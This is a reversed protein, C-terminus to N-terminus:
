HSTPVCEPLRKSGAKLESETACIRIGAKRTAALALQEDEERDFKWGLNSRLYEFSVEPYRETIEKVTKAADDQRGLEAQAAAMTVLIYPNLPNITRWRNAAEVAEAFRKTYFFNSVCDAYYWAPPNPNLRFSRDCMAAGEESKGIFHMTDAALNLIDASSPNLQQARAAAEAAETNRDGGVITFALLVHALAENPDVGIATRALREMEAYTEDWNKRYAALHFLLWAKQVYARALSPDRAIAAEAYKIGREYAEQTGELDADYALAYLDYAQLDSPRKRKAALRVRNVLLNYGGLTNAVREAVETQVAFVDEAPRDWRESWVHSGHNTEVLQATVRVTDAQRQISGELVYGVNLEKAIQRVDVAKGKYQKVSNRAIVDLDRYRALDTIIDETIGEALRGTAEDGSLNDFPLVAISPVTDSATKPQSMLFWGGVVAAVAALAAVAWRWNVPEQKRTVARRPLGDMKVKFVTIPETINKVKQEGLPEFGFALKKEVEKTVKGSVCIGDPEALQQLRAAINVGEGLRDDGEVIVEGLNIGIRVHIQQDDPVHANREALGRQLAVACEVADVVSGFEALLGDGMLKFVRGHHKVIEPEFLEKRHARIRDFTGAEDTEMLSSYGVVDAAVITSLKREV